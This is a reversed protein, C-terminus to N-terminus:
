TSVATSIRAQNLIKIVRFHYQIAIHKMSKKTRQNSSTIKLDTENNDKSFDKKRNRMRQPTQNIFQTTFPSFISAMWSEMRHNTPTLREILTLIQMTHGSKVATPPLHTKTQLPALKLLKTFYFRVHNWAQYHNNLSHFLATNLTQKSFTTTKSKISWSSRDLSPLMSTMASAIAADVTQCDRQRLHKKAEQLLADLEKEPM